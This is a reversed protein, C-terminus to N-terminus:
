ALVYRFCRNYPHSVQEDTGNVLTINFWIAFNFELSKIYLINHELHKDQSGTETFKSGKFMFDQRSGM